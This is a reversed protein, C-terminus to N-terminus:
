VVFFDAATITTGATVTAFLVQAAAGSGDADFYLNGTASDYVIRDSADAASSGARFRAGGLAGTAGIGGFVADDVQIRDDVAVFDSLRDVNLTASLASDFRFTDLGAGGTLTDNGSGGSLTDNGAGGILTDNGAAGNLRNAGTNGTLRNALANGSGTLDASGTLTLRELNAGLTWNASALVTDIEGAVASSETIRDLTSDVVYTDNGSGGVLTDAGLGGDLWNAGTNGTLRNALANGTGTTSGTGNLTLREIGAGLTHSTSSIVTDIDAAGIGSDVAVDAAQAVYYTDSGAGGDMSDAGGGGNLTDNGANGTLTDNGGAGLLMNHGSGGTIQNARANGTGSIALSGQLILHEFNTGLAWSTNFSEVTDIESASTGTEILTDLGDILYYYDNGAGGNVTDSGFGGEVEDNGAGGNIIDNGAYGRVTDNGAGGSLSDAGGEANFVLDNGDGGELTDNGGSGGLTDNGAAGLLVNNGSTGTIGNGLANGTGDLNQVGQLALHEINAGLTWSVHSDVVDIEAAASISEVVVDGADRVVYRDYGSGGILTDAGLGGDLTDDGASGTLSDTSGGGVLSDNGGQGDVINAGSSLVTNSMLVTDNGDGTAIRVHVTTAFGPAYTNFPRFDYSDNGATGRFDTLFTDLNEIGIFPLTTGLQLVGDILDANDTGSGGDVVWGALNAAGNLDFGDNGGEGYLSDMGVAGLFADNGLGGRILNNGATGTLSDNGDGSVLNEMETFSEDSFNTTGTTLNVVYNGDYSTTDLTDIGTGGVITDGGFIAYIYDDGAGGLATDSGGGGGDLTDNGDGGTLSDSGSGGQISDNGLGGNLVNAGSTGTLTDNGAGTILNEFETFSEGLFNTQGTTLNVNYNGVFVTTDLTDTGAGGVATDTGIVAHIYDDGAGGLQSDEGGGGDLTDNGDGGNLTDNGAGGLITDNGLGGALANAGSTGILTDNGAGTILNELGTFSEGAYNTTGTALNVLYNISFASTDLTDIGSGGVVTDPGFAGYILDDGAGGNAVDADGGGANLTDNGAGGDLFDSGSGGNLADRYGGGILSDNGGEGNIINHGAAGRGVIGFLVDTNTNSGYVTDNGAGASILLESPLDFGPSYTTFPRFDYSDNGATGRFDTQFTDLLEIGTFPLSQGLQVVGQILDVSDYGDGGSVLWGTLNSVANLDFGDDGFEGYMLDASGDSGILLDNGGGGYLTDFGDGGLLTDNDLGGGLQDNGAGGVISDNAAGGFLTDNGGLGSITDNEEFGNLVDNGETGNIIM